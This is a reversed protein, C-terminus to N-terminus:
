SSCIQQNCSASHLAEWTTCHYLIQRSICSVCSVRTQDESQSSVRFYSIAVWELIRAQFIGHVSSGPLGRDVPNCFTSVVTLDPSCPLHSTLLLQFHLSPQEKHGWLSYGVLSRQGYFEGPLFVPTLPWERRGSRPLSCLNGTNCAFAKSNHWM